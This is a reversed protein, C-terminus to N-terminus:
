DLYTSNLRSFFFSQILWRHNGCWRLLLYHHLTVVLSRNILHQSFLSALCTDQSSSMISLKPLISHSILSYWQLDCLGSVTTPQSKFLFERCTRLPRTPNKLGDKHVKHKVVTRTCTFLISLCCTFCICCPAHAHMKQMDISTIFAYGNNTVHTEPGLFTSHLVM